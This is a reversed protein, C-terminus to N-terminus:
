RSGGPIRKWGPRGVAAWVVIGLFFIFGLVWPLEPFITLIEKAFIPSELDPALAKESVTGVLAFGLIAAVTLGAGVGHIWDPRSRTKEADCIAGTGFLASYLLLVTGSAVVFFLNLLAVMEFGVVLLFVSQCLGVGLWGLVIKRPTTTFVTYGALLTAVLLLTALLIPKV